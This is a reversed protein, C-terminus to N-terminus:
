VNTPKGRISYRTVRYDLQRETMGLLRAARAKVWGCRELASLIRAKEVNRLTGLLSTEEADSAHSVSRMDQFYTTLTKPITKFTIVADDAMIVLREICHELERVNGPWDYLVMLHEVEPSVQVRARHEQNFRALFHAILLPLDETRERLPPLVIPVVNLRYYLDERFAGERVVKELDAHTATIVRVDAALTASGGVRRFRMEELVRLLKAQITLPVDGIEDLFVTGGKAEELLGPKRKIAGTFAGREHGFLESEFLTEPIAACHVPVFPHDARPGSDHIARAILEKGTGTEGRLLVTAQTHSVKRVADYVERMRDSRGIIKPFSIAEIMNEPM